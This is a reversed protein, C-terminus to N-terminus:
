RRFDLVRRLEAGPEAPLAAAEALAHGARLRLRPPHADARELRPGHVLHGGAPRLLLRLAGHHEPYGAVAAPTSSGGGFHDGIACDTLWAPGGTPAVIADLKHQNLVADLGEERSLRRNKALADLYAKDTLPGKAQAQLFLEQGFCPMERDRNKENFAIVDALTKVRASPGLTALYANLDAKLEYLLVELETADYEGLHPIEAPDVIVAGAKKMAAVADEFLRDVDRNFGTKKRAVGIRAGKLGNPDLFRTYDPRSTDGPQRRDRRRAPRHRDARGAPGGRRARHAGHARGHGPQARHPHHGRPQGPRADAQHRGPRDREVPVRDLRRDRHRHGGRGPQGGGRHGLGSSSGCPNRDLVYPNRCQGGRASWGSSSKNSRINAWESMNTKGLLIAGAARLREAVISDRPPISGELALSGATTTMQDHTDVNDKLLIPIGHLPGRAGKARREADLADAIALAEPNTELMSRLTPGKRDM